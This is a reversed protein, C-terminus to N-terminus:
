LPRYFATHYNWLGNPPQMAAALTGLFACALPSKLFCIAFLNGGWVASHLDQMDEGGTKGIHYSGGGESTYSATPSLVTAGRTAAAVPFQQRVLRLQRSATGKFLSTPRAPREACFGGELPECLSSPRQRQGGVFKSTAATCNGIESLPSFSRMESTPTQFAENESIVPPIRVAASSVPEPSFTRLSRVEQQDSPFEPPTEAAPSRLSTMSSRKFVINGLGVSPMKFNAALSLNSNTSPSRKFNGFNLYKPPVHGGGGGGDFLSLSSQISPSRRFHNTNNNNNNNNIQKMTALACLQLAESNDEKVASTEVYNVAEVECCIALAQILVTQKETM